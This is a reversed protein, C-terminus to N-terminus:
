EKPNVVQATSASPNQHYSPVTTFSDYRLPLLLSGARQSIAPRLRISLICYDRSVSIVRPVLDGNHRFMKM